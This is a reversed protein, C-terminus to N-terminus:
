KRREWRYFIHDNIRIVRTKSAAWDPKVYNAHYHTSGDTPDYINGTYVGEAISLAKTWAKGKKPIDPKGDCYFSFQCKNKIPVKPNYKYTLGQKVVECVNDPFRSDSVRNTIVYGVAVQGATPEGRAEFYIATALCIISTIM